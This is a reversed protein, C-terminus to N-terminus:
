TPAIPGVSGWACWAKWIARPSEPGIANTPPSPSLNSAAAATTGGSVRWAVAPAVADPHIIYTSGSSRTPRRRRHVAPAPDEGPSHASAARGSRSIALSRGSSQSSTSASSTATKAAKPTGFATGRDRWGATPRATGASDALEPLGILVDIFLDKPERDDPDDDAGVHFDSRQVIRQARSVGFLKSLRHLLANKGAANPGVVAIIEPSIPVAWSGLGYTRFGALTASELNM